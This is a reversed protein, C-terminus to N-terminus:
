IVKKIVRLKASRSRINQALEKPEPVLPKKVILEAWDDARWAKFQQKVIRDELSHFSIALILGNTNLIKFAEPLAAKISALEHNVALRLAQFVRTAVHPSKATQPHRPIVSEIISVLKATTDIQGRHAALARAIPASFREEGFERLLTTLETTTLQKLLQAATQTLTSDLRMDLYEDVQFSLGRGASEFHFSAVGFDFIVADAKGEFTKLIAANNGVQYTVRDSYKALRRKARELMAADWDLGTVRCNPFAELIAQTHGGDGLTADVVHSLYPIQNLFFVVQEVMVPKHWKM